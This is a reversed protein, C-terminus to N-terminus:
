SDLLLLAIAVEAQQYRQHEDRLDTAVSRLNAEWFPKLVDTQLMFDETPKTGRWLELRASSLPLRQPTSEKFIPVTSSQKRPPGNGRGGAITSAGYPSCGTVEDVKQQGQFTYPLGVVVMGQHFLYTMFTL